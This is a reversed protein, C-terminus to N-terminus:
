KPQVQPNGGPSGPPPIIPTRSAGQNPPQVVSRDHTPPPHIVGGSRSLERSLSGPAASSGSRPQQRPLLVGNGGSTDPPAPVNEAAYRGAALTTTGDHSQAAAVGIGAGLVMAAILPGVIAKM